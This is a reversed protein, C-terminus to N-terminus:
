INEFADDWEMNHYVNQVDDDAELIDILKQITKYGEVSPKKTNLPLRQLGSDEVPLNMEEIKKHLTGFSEVEGKVIVVDEDQEVDTAGADILEMTLEDVDIGEAPLTFVAKREFVFQLCGEKGLSGHWRNFAAKVNSATRTPNNTTGEVFIAVGEAGYGEYNVEDWTESGEGLARKIAKDINDKPVNYTKAKQLALKLSFNSEVEAGSKKVAITIDRLVKTYSQSRAKDMAAKKEKINNWKRGM